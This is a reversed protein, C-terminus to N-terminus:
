REGYAFICELYIIAKNTFLSVILLKFSFPINTVKCHPFWKKLFVEFVSFKFFINIAKIVHFSQFLFASATLLIPHPTNLFISIQLM